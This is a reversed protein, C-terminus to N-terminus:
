RAAVVADLLQEYRDLVVDWSYAQEVYRGGAAGMADARAPDRALADVADGFDDPSLYAVGGGSRDVHGLTVECRRQVLVPRAKAFAEAVVMSFSEFHSPQVLALAGALASDRITADVFGTVVIDDRRPVDLLPAGLLVLQMDGGRAAKYQTFFHLLEAAGKGADVRGVYVLYPHHGVAPFEQRFQADDAHRVDVGIGVVSGVPEIRFRRRILAREEPTSLAFADPLRFVEDFPVLHLPAEDHVTPHLVTPVLGAAARLGAWTPWYLYTFFIVCDFGRGHAALWPPLDPVVPGQREFWEYQAAVSRPARSDLLENTLADFSAKDRKAAVPLRHVAVGALDSTGPQFENAWDVNSSACTTAVEVEHGRASLRQAFELCHQEAGGAVTEGYRQVVYCLRMM